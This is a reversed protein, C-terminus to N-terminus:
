VFKKFIANDAASAKRSLQHRFKLFYETTKKLTNELFFTMQRVRYLCLFYIDTIKLNRSNLKHNHIRKFLAESLPGAILKCFIGIKAFFFFDNKWIFSMKIKAPLITANPACFVRVCVNFLRRVWFSDSNPAVYNPWKKKTWLFQLSPYRCCKTGVPPAVHWVASAVNSTKRVIKSSRM